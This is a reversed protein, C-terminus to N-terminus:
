VRLKGYTTHPSRLQSGMVGPLRSRIRGQPVELRTNLSSHPLRATPRHLARDLAKSLIPKTGDITVFATGTLETIKPTSGDSFIVGFRRGSINGERNDTTDKDPWNGGSSYVQAWASADYYLLLLNAEALGTIQSPYYFYSTIVDNADAGSVQVDVYGGGADIVTSGPTLNNTYNAVTVALPIAKSKDVEPM